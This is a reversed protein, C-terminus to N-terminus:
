RTLGQLLLETANVLRRRYNEPNTEMGIAQMAEKQKQTLNMMPYAGIVLYSQATLFEDAVEVSPFPLATSLFQAVM